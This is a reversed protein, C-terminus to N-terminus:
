QHKELREIVALKQSPLDIQAIRESCFALLARDIMAFFNVMFTRTQEELNSRLISQMTSRVQNFNLRTGQDHGDIGMPDNAFFCSARVEVLRLGATQLAQEFEFRSRVLMWETRMTSRPLYETSVMRGEPALLSALNKLAQAFLNQEPIHFLVNGVNILDFQGDLHLHPDTIDAQRFEVEVGRDNRSHYQQLLDISSRAVDIGLFYKPQHHELLFRLWRGSGCGVDLIRGQDVELRLDAILQEYVPYAVADEVQNSYTISGQAAADSWYKEYHNRIDAQMLPM